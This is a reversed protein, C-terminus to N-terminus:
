RSQASVAPPLTFKGLSLGFPSMVVGCGVPLESPETGGKM